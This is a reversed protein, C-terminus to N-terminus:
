SLLPRVAAEDAPRCVAMAPEADALFYELESATYATNLPVYVLGAREAALYLLVNEQSKDVQVVIRDGPQAGLARLRAALQGTRADLDGFTLVTAGGEVLFPKDGLASAGALFHAFITGNDSM